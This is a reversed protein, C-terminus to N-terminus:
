LASSTSAIRTCLGRRNSVNAYPRGEDSRTVDFTGAYAVLDARHAV